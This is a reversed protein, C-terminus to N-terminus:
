SFAPEGIKRREQGQFRRRLSDIELWCICRLMPRRRPRRRGQRWLPPSHPRACLHWLLLPGDHPEHAIAPRILPQCVLEM